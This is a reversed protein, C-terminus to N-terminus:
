RYLIPEGEYVFFHIFDFFHCFFVASATKVQTHFDDMLPMMM